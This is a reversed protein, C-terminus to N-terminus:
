IGTCISEQWHLNIMPEIAIPIILESGQQLTTQCCLEGPIGTMRGNMDGFMWNTGFTKITCYEQLADAAPPIRM